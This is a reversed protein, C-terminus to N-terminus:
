VRVDYFYLAGEPHIRAYWNEGGQISRRIIVEQEM